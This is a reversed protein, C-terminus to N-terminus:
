STFVADWPSSRALFSSSSPIWFAVLYNEGYCGTIMLMVFELATPLRRSDAIGPQVENPPM